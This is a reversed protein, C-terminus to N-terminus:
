IHDLKFLGVAFTSTSERQKILCNEFRIEGWDICRQGIGYSKDDEKVEYQPPHILPINYNFNLMTNLGYYKTSLYTAQASYELRDTFRSAWDQHKVNPIKVLKVHRRCVILM